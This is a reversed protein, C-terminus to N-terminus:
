PAPHPDTAPRDPPRYRPPGPPFFRLRNARRPPPSIPALALLQPPPGPALLASKPAPKSGGRLGEPPPRKRLRNRPRAPRALPPRNPPPFGPRCRAFFRLRNTRRPP